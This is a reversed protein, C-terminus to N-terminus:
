ATQDGLGLSPDMEEERISPNCSYAVVALRKFHPNKPILHLGEQECPMCKVSQTTQGARRPIKLAAPQDLVSM